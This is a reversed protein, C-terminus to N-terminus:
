PFARGELSYTEASTHPACDLGTYKSGGTNRLFGETQSGTPFWHDIEFARWLHNRKAVSGAACYLTPVLPMSKGPSTSESGGLRGSSKQGCPGVSFCRIREQCVQDHSGLGLYTKPHALGLSHGCCCGTRKGRLSASNALLLVNPKPSIDM